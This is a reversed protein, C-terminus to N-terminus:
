RRRGAERCAPWPRCSVAPVRDLVDGGRLARHRRGSGRAQRGREGRRRNDRCPQRDSRGRAGERLDRRALSLAMGGRSAPVPVCEGSTSRPLLSPQGPEEVHRWRGHGEGSRRGLADLRWPRLSGPDGGRAGERRHPAAGSLQSPLKGQEAEPDGARDKGARTDWDRDRYGNRQVERLPSRAGRAAGTREEVEVEMIRDAAFALMERVLDGDAQKEVLDILAMRDDTM